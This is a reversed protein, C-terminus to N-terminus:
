IKREVKVFKWFFKFTETGNKPFKNFMIGLQRVFGIQVSATKMTSFRSQIIPDFGRKMSNKKIPQIQEKNM